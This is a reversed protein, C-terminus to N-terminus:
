KEGTDEPNCSVVKQMPKEEDEGFVGNDYRVDPELIALYNEERLWWVPAAPRGQFEFGPPLAIWTSTDGVVWRQLAERIVPLWAEAVETDRHISRAIGRLFDNVEWSIVVNEHLSEQETM